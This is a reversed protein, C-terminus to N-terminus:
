WHMSFMALPFLVLGDGDTGLPRFGTLTFSMGDGFFRLGINFIGDFDEDDDIFQTNTAYEVIFKTRESFQLDAGALLMWAPDTAEDGFTRQASFNLSRRRDGVGLVGGATGFSRDDFRTVNAVAAVGVPFEERSLLRLKAGAGFMILESSVPFLTAFSIDLDDTVGLGFNLFFLEFDRFYGAGKPLTEPTPVLLISNYDPDLPAGDLEFPRDARFVHQIASTRVVMQGLSESEITITEDDEAVIVGVLVSGDKMTIRDPNPEDGLAPAAVLCLGAILCILARASAGGM